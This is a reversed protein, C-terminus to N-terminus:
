LVEWMFLGKEVTARTHLSEVGHHLVIKLNIKLLM